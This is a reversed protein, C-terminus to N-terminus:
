SSGSKGPSKQHKKSVAPTKLESFPRKRKSSRTNVRKAEPPLSVQESGTGETSSGTERSTEELEEEEPSSEKKKEKWPSPEANMNGKGKSGLIALPIPTVEPLNTVVFEALPLAGLTEVIPEKEPQQPLPTKVKSLPKEKCPTETPIPRPPQSSDEVATTFFVKRIEVLAIEVKWTFTVLVKIVKAASVEADLKVDENFLRAKNIVNGPEGIAKKLLEFSKVQKWLDEIENSQVALEVRLDAIRNELSKTEVAQLKKIEREINGVKCDGLLKSAKITITDLNHFQFRVQELDDFLRWFPDSESTM